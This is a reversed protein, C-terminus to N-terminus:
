KQQLLIQKYIDILMDYNVQPLYHRDYYQKITTVYDQPNLVKEILEQSSDFTFTGAPAISELIHKVNGINSGLVPTGASFAEVMIMPFGEYWRTPLIVAQSTAIFERIEPPPLFGALQVQTLANKSIYDKCWDELPGTGCIILRPASSGMKKWTELLFEIGKLADIRGIFLFQPLRKVFPIIEATDLFTFNPKVYVHAPNIYKRLSLLKERNFETLCIYHLKKYTGLLRHVKLIAAAALTQLKSNRYCAHRIGCHLGMAPCDECIHNDRFLTANPCVLRFNHVTQVVPLKRFFAAYYVSPSILSLTNHVHVLNIKEKKILQNVERFTRLSFIGTFPLLLKQLLHFQKLQSNNRTYVIVEHGQQKLLREENAVVTDEGGPIQYYNHVILIKQKKEM